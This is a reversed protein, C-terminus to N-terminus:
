ARIAWYRGRELKLLLGKALLRRIKSLAADETMGFADALDSPGFAGAQAQAWAIIPEPPNTAIGTCEWQGGNFSLALPEDHELERGRRFLKADNSQDPRRLVFATDVAAIQGTTGQIDQIPDGDRGQRDEKRTHTLGLLFVNHAEALDHIQQLSRKDKLYSMGHEPVPVFDALTDIVLLVPRLQTLWEGLQEIGGEDMRPLKFKVYLQEPAKRGDLLKLLKRQVMRRGEDIAVYLVPGAVTARSWVKDGRAVALAWSWALFSKGRKPDGALLAFGEPVVGEILWRLPPIDEGALRAASDEPVLRASVKSSPKRQTIHQGWFAAFAQAAAAEESDTWEQVVLAAAEEAEDAAIEEPTFTMHQLEAATFGVAQM